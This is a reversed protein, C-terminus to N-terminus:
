PVRHQDPWYYNKREAAKSSIFCWKSSLLLYEDLDKDQTEGRPNCEDTSLKELNPTLKSLKAAISKRRLQCCFKLDMFGFRKLNLPIKM